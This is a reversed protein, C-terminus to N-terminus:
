KKLKPDLVDRLGDGFLNVALVVVMISLGPIITLYGSNKIYDRGASLMAGWEPIPPRVGIGIYSLSAADLIRAGVGMTTQVLIPSISNPIVHKAIIRANNCNNSVAADIYEMKRVKLISARMLRSAGAIGGIGLAIITNIIGPGLMCALAINLIMGPISQIVDCIRMIVNDVIGGFFGAISGLITGLIASLVAAGIGISISYRAGYLIRSFVDRGMDDTGFIHEACPPLLKQSSMASYDYPIILPAILAIIVVVLFIIGGAMAGKNYSLRKLFSVIANDRKKEIFSTKIVTNSM